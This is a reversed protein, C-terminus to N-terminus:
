AVFTVSYTLIQCVIAEPRVTRGRAIFLVVRGVVGRLRASPQGSGEEVGKSLLWGAGLIVWPDGLLSLRVGDRSDERRALSM